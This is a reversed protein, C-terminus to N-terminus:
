SVSLPLCETEVIPYKREVATLKQSLFAVPYEERHSVQSLVAGLGVNSSNVQVGGLGMDPAVLVPHM